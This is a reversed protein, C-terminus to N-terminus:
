RDTSLKNNLKEKPSERGWIGRNKQDQALINPKTIEPRGRGMRGPARFAINRAHFLATLDGFVTNGDLYLDLLM